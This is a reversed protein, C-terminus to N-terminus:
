KAPTTEPVVTTAPPATVTPSEFVIAKIAGHLSAPATAGSGSTKTDDGGGPTLTFDTVLMARSLHEVERFFSEVNFYSGSVEIALPIQSLASPAAVTGTASPTTGTPMTGTPASAVVPAPASPALSILDVGAARAASTLQRILVPLAPSNPVKTAIQELLRQQEPLGRKQQELQSVNAQLTANAQQQTTAQSRLESASSRQPSVLLMWGAAFIALVGVATLISWQRLKDM